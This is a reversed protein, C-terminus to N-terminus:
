YAIILRNNQNKLFTSPRASAEKGWLVIHLITEHAICNFQAANDFTKGAYQCIVVNIQLYLFALDPSEDAFVTGTFGGQHSNKVTKVPRIFTFDIKISFLSDNMRGHIRDPCAQAHDVLVEHEERRQTHAFVNDISGFNCFAPKDIDVSRMFTHSLQSVPIPQPNVWFCTDTGKRDTDALPHLNELHQVAIRFRQDQIFGCSYECGLFPVSQEGDQTFQSALLAGDNEDGM